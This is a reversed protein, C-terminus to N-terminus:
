PAKAKTYLTQQTEQRPPHAVGLDPHSPLGRGTEARAQGGQLLPAPRHTLDPAASCWAAAAHSPGPGPDRLPLRGGREAHPSKRGSRPCHGERPRAQPSAARGEEMIRERHQHRPGFPCTPQPGPWMQGAEPTAGAGPFSPLSCAFVPTGWTPRPGQAQGFRM